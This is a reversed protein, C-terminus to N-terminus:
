SKGETRGAAEAQEAFFERAQRRQRLWKRVYQRLTQAAAEVGKAEASLLDADVYALFSGCRNLVEAQERLDQARAEMSNLAAEIVSM